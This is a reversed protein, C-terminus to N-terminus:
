HSSLESKTVGTGRLKRRVIPLWAFAGFMQAGIIVLLLLGPVTLIAGAVAWEFAGLTALVDMALNGYKPNDDVPISFYESRVSPMGDGGSTPPKTAGGAGFAM